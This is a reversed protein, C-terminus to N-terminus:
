LEAERRLKGQTTRKLRKKSHQIIDKMTDTFNIFCKRCYEAGTSDTGKPGAYDKRKEINLNAM